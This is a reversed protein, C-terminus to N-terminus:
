GSSGAAPTDPFAFPGLAQLIQSLCNDISYEATKITLEPHEPAEYPDTIGTFHLIEGSIARRYLGKVDRQMCVDLPCDVYVEVFRGLLRRCLDRAERYPSVASVVAIGGRKTVEQALTGIRRAQEIRDEQSYGLDKSLTQRLTDGDLRVVTASRSELHRALADALTSKGSSPLGTFWVTFGLM